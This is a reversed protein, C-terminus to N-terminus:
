LSISMLHLRSLLRKINSGSKREHLIISLLFNIITLIQGIITLQFFYYIDTCNYWIHLTFFISNITLLFILYKDTKALTM